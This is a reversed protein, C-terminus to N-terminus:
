GDKWTKLNRLWESMPNRQWVYLIKKLELTLVRQVEPIGQGARGLDLFTVLITCLSDFSFLDPYKCTSYSTGLCFWGGKVWLSHAKFQGAFRVSSCPRSGLDRGGAGCWGLLPFGGTLGSGWRAPSLLRMGPLAGSAFACAALAPGAGRAAAAPPPLSGGAVRPSRGARAESVPLDGVAGLGVGTGQPLMWDEECGGRRSPAGAAWVAPGGAGRKRGGPDARDRGVVGWRGPGPTQPVGHRDGGGGGGRGVAGAGTAEAAARPRRTPPRNRESTWPCPATGGGSGCAAAVSLHPARGTGGGGRLVGRGRGEKRERERLQRWVCGSSGGGGGCGGGGWAGKGFYGPLGRAAGNWGAAAAADLSWEVINGGGGAAIPPRAPSLGSYASRGNAVGGRESTAGAEPLPLPCLPPLQAPPRPAAAHAPRPAGPWLRAPPPTALHQQARHASGPTGPLLNVAGPEVHLYLASAGRLKPLNFSRPSPGSPAHALPVQLSSGEQSCRPSLPLSSECM